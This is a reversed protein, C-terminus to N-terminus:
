WRWGPTGTPRSRTTPSSAPRPWRSTTSSRRGSGATRGCDCPRSPTASRPARGRVPRPRRPHPLGPGAHRASGGRRVDADLEAAARRGQRLRVAGGGRRPHAAHGPGPGHVGAGLGRHHAAHRPYPAPDRRRLRVQRAEDPGARRRAPRPPGDSPGGPVAGRRRAAPRRGRAGRARRHRLVEPRHTRPGRRPVDLRRARGPQRGRGVAPAASPRPPPLRAHRGGRQAPGGGGQAATRRRPGRGLRPVGRRLAGAGRDGALRRPGGRLPRLGAPDAHLPDDFRPADAALAPDTHLWDYMAGTLASGAALAAGAGVLGRRNLMLDMGTFETLVAATREPAWPLGDPTWRRGGNGRAGTGAFGLDEITVVRGLRETFLAALVRPVPDRPIEGMDIWRRVRSTDTALQPHGM